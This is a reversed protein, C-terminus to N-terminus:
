ILKSRSHVQKTLVAKVERTGWTVNNLNFISYIILLMYMSPITIYYIIGAPLCFVEQPHFLGTIILEGAVVFLFLSSPALIGDEEIQLMIGVLVAMMVLGYVTSIIMAAPMQILSVNFYKLESVFIIKFNKILFPLLSYIEM